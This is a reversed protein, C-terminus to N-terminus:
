HQPCAGGAPSEPMPVTIRILLIITRCAIIAVNAPSATIYACFRTPPGNPPMIGPTKPNRTPQSTVAAIGSSISLKLRQNWLRRALLFSCGLYGPWCTKRRDRRICHRHHRISSILRGVRAGTHRPSRFIDSITIAPMGPPSVQIHTRSRREPPEASRARQRPM